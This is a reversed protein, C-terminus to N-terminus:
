KQYDQKCASCLPYFDEKSVLDKNSCCYGCITKYEGVSYYLEELLEYCRIKRIAVIEQDFRGDLALGTIQGGCTYTYEELARNLTQRESPTLKYKSM